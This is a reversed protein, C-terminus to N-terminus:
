TARSMIRGLAKRLGSRPQKPQAAEAQQHDSYAESAAQLFEAALAQDDDPIEQDKGAVFKVTQEHLRMVWLRGTVGHTSEGDQRENVELRYVRATDGSNMYYPAISGALSRGREDAPTQMELIAGRARTADHLYTLLDQADSTAQQLQEAGPLTESQDRTLPLQENMM